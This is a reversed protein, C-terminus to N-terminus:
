QTQAGSTALRLQADARKPPLPADSPIPEAPEYTAVAPTENAGGTVKAILSAMMDKGGDALGGVFGISGGILPAPTATPKASASPAPYRAQRPSATSRRRLEDGFEASAVSYSPASVAPTAPAVPKGKDDLPIIRPGAELADPDSADAIKGAFM